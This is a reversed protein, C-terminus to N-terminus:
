RTVIPSPVPAPATSTKPVAKYALYAAHSIGLLWLFSAGVKPMTDFRANSGLANWLLQVYTMVLLVTVILKQLRSVDVVDRTAVEDGLYLDAWSAESADVNADLLGKNTPTGVAPNAPPVPANQANLKGNAIVGGVVASGGVIGLLAWLEPQMAPFSDGATNLWGVAVNWTAETFFGGLLVILWAVWQARTLSIRNLEDILIGDPRHNVIYGALVCVGLLVAEVALWQVQLHAALRAHADSGIWIGCGVLAAVFLLTLLGWRLRVNPPPPSTAPAIGPVTARAVSPLPAAASPQASSGPGGFFFYEGWDASTELDITYSDRWDQSPTLSAAQVGGGPPFYEINRQYAAKGSGGSAFAGSGMPPYSGTGVTEGGFDIETAGTTMPGNQYLSTPYYGVAHASDTGNVFLWWNGDSLVFSLEIEAQTGGSVSTQTLATGVPCNASYQVFDGADNSYSGTSTYGDATWYTFLVPQSHGYKQPFVQWGVEATQLGNGGSAVYWQQSLSFIQNGTVNPAWVNLISHGGVNAAPQYAHAYEHPPEVSPAILPRLLQSASRQDSRPGKRLFHHLDEFRNMEDLTVRRIPVTGPPCVMKNGFRDTRTGDLVVGGVPASLAKAKGPLAPPTALPGASKKLAPQQAVPVCDFVQGSDDVFSHQVTVGSYLNLLHQRKEEFANM